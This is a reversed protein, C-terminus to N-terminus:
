PWPIAIKSASNASATWGLTINYKSNAIVMDGTAVNGFPAIVSEPVVGTGVYNVHNPRLQHPRYTAYNGIDINDEHYVFYMTAATNTSASGILPATVTYREMAYYKIFKMDEDIVFTISSHSIGTTMTVNGSWEINTANGTLSGDMLISFQFTGDGNDALAGRTSTQLLGFPADSRGAQLNANNDISQSNAHVYQYLGTYAANVNYPIYNYPDQAFATHFATWKATHGSDISNINAWRAATTSPTVQGTAGTGDVINTNGGNSRGYLYDGDFLWERLQTAEGTGAGLLGGQGRSFTTSYLDIPDGSQNYNVITNGRAQVVVSASAAARGHSLMELAGYESAKNYAINYLRLEIPKTNQPTSQVSGSFLSVVINTVEILGGHNINYEYANNALPIAETGSIVNNTLKGGVIALGSYDYNLTISSAPPFPTGLNNLSWTVLTDFGSEQISVNIDIGTIGKVINSIEGAYGAKDAVVVISYFTDNNLGTITGPSVANAVATGGSIIQGADNYEGEIYYLTYTDAAPDTPSFTYNLVGTGPGQTVILDSIGTTFSILTSANLIGSFVDNYNANQALVVVSYTTNSALGNIIGSGASASINGDAASVLAQANAFSTGTAYYLTYSTGAAPDAASLTYNLEGRGSGTTLSTLVPPATFTGPNITLATSHELLTAPINFNAAATVDIYISYTGANTQDADNGAGYSVDFLLGDGANADSNFNANSFAVNATKASTDYTHTNSSVNFDSATLNAKGVVLNGASLGSAATWNGDSSAAVNFTVTYSGAARPAAVSGNYLITIAGNTKGTNPTIGGPQAIPKNSGDYTYTGLNFSFDGALPTAPNVTVPVAANKVEIYNSSNPTFTMAFANPSTSVDGVPTGTADWTFTGSTTGGANTFSALSLDALTQDYFATLLTPWNVLAPAIPSIVYDGDLPLATAPAFSATAAVSVSISYTGANTPATTSAAYVTPAKGTYTISIDGSTIEADAGNIATASITVAQSATNFPVTAGSWDFDEKVLQNKSSPTVQRILSYTTHYYQKEAEIVFSYLEDNELNLATGSLATDNSIPVSVLDAASKIAAADALNGKAYYLTLTDANPVPKTITYNASLIAGTVSLGPITEFDVTAIKVVINYSASDGSQAFVTYRVTKENSFDQPGIPQIMAGTYNITPTLVNLSSELNPHVWLTIDLGTMEISGIKSPVDVDNIVVSSANIFDAPVFTYSAASIANDYIQATERVAKVKGDYNVLIIITYDGSELALSGENVENDLDIPTINGISITGDAGLPINIEYRLTGTKGTTQKLINANPKLVVNVITNGDPSVTFSNETTGSFLAGAGTNAADATAAAQDAYGYVTLNYTGLPLELDIATRGNLTELTVTTSVTNTFVLKYYLSSLNYQSPLITRAGESGLNIRVNGNGKSNLTVPPNLMNDCAGLFVAIILLLSLYKKM